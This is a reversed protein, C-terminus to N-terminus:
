RYVHRLSQKGTRWQLGNRYDISADGSHRRALALQCRRSKISCLM